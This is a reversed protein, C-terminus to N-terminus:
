EVGLIIKAAALEETLKAITAANQDTIKQIYEDKSYMYYDYEYGSYEVGDMTESYPTINEAIYVMMPTIEVDLPRTTGRVRGLNRM